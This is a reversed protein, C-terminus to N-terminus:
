DAQALVMEAPQRAVRDPEELWQGENIARILELPLKPRRDFTLLGNIEQEVDTFQTYCFGQVLPSALLTTVLHGYDHCFEAENSARSYGWGQWESKRFAIGGCETIVIPEGQYAFGPTYLHRRSPRFALITDLTAYREQLTAADAAYDHITCLDARVHEWGDNAMVLRTPDLTKTLYYLSLLFHAQRLDEALEPVGWSENVPVWAVICPHNYDREVVAQWEATLRRVAEDSFRYANAMEGWVLLGLRDAWYLYRPDEVKQHKRVGNFGMARALEVDHRIAADSPPTLLGDPWYGQDLVLKMMYPAGNLRVRGDEVAIQRMGFYSVVEDYVEDDVEDCPEEGRYLRLRVDYLNPTEPSWLHVKPLPIVSTGRSDSLPIDATAVVAGAFSIEVAVRGATAQSAFCTVSVSERSVDPTFQVRALHNRDVPELWVTQWIGSTGTYFIKEPQEKWYQKGRPQTLDASVDEVRVVLHNVEALAATVDAHFPTHGGEHYAVLQGNLWVWARYDVAGFHLLIRRGHWAEPVTFARQYWLVDHLTRRGIGSLESQYAFPVTITESFPSRHQWRAPDFWREVLGRDADDFAFSWAGNLNQWEPRVFQPRPYEPRPHNM